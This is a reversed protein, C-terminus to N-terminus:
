GGFVPLLRGVREMTYQSQIRERFAADFDHAQMLHQVTLQPVGAVEYVWGCFYEVQLRGTEHEYGVAVISASKVLRRELDREVPISETFKEWASAILQFLNSTQRSPLSYFM